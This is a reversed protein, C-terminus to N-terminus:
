RDFIKHALLEEEEAEIVSGWMSVQKKTYYLAIRIKPKNYM